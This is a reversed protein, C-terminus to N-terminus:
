FAVRPSEFFPYPLLWHAVPSPIIPRAPCEGGGGSGFVHGPPVGWMDSHTLFWNGFAAPKLDNHYQAKLLKPNIIYRQFIIICYHVKLKKKGMTCVDKWKASPFHVCWMTHYVFSVRWKREQRVVHKKMACLLYTSCERVAISPLVWLAIYYYDSFM